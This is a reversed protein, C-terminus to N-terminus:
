RNQIIKPIIIALDKKKKDGKDTKNAAPPNSKSIRERDLGSITTKTMIMMKALMM